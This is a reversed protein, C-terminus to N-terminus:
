KDQGYGKFAEIVQDMDKKNLVYPRGIAMTRVQIEAVYELTKALNFASKLDEGLSVLGHNALLVALAQGCTEVAKKALDKSGYREYPACPVKNTSADALVYHVALIPMHMAALCACYISHTHVIAGIDGRAKYFSTHLFWESSPKKDGEIIEGELDILVLDEPRLDLYDIGSPSILVLNEDKLFVSLNGSTGPALGAQSMKKGYVILDQREKFYKM